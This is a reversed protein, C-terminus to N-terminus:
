KNKIIEYNLLEFNATARLKKVESRMLENAAEYDGYPLHFSGRALFDHRMLMPFHYHWEKKLRPYASVYYLPLEKPLEARLKELLVYLREHLIPKHPFAIGAIPSLICLFGSENEKFSQIFNQHYDLNSIRYDTGLMEKMRENQLEFKRAVPMIQINPNSTQIRDILWQFLKTRLRYRRSPQGAGDVGLDLHVAYPILAKKACNLLEGLTLGIPLADFAYHHDFFVIANGTQLQQNLKKVTEATVDDQSVRTLKRNWFKLIGRIIPHFAGYINDVSIDQVVTQKRKIHQM